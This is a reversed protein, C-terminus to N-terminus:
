LFFVNEIVMIEQFPRSSFFALEQAKRRSFECVRDM